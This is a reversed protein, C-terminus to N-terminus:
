LQCGWDKRERFRCLSDVTFDAKRMYKESRPSLGMRFDRVFDVALSEIQAILQQSSIMFM